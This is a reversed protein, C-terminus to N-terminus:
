IKTDESRCRYPEPLPQWAIVDVMIAYGTNSNTWKKNMGSYYAIVRECDNEFSVLVNQFNEPLRVEVPIWGCGNEMNAAQLKASLAEIINAAQNLLEKTGEIERGFPPLDYEESYKKLKGCDFNMCVPEYKQPLDQLPCWDPRKIGHPDYTGIRKRKGSFATCFTDLTENGTTFSPCKNCITPTDIVLIYKSM